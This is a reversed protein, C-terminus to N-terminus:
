RFSDPVEASEQKEIEDYFHALELLIVELKELYDPETLQTKRDRLKALELEKGDRWKRQEDTLRSEFESRVLHVQNARIGDAM